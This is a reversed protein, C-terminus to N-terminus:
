SFGMQEGSQPLRLHQCFDEMGSSKKM